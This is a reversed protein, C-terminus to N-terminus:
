NNPSRGVCGSVIPILFIIMLVVGLKNTQKM